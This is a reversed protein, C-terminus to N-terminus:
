GFLKCLQAQKRLSVLRESGTGPSKPQYSGFARDDHRLSVAVCENVGDGANGYDIPRIQKEEPVCVSVKREKSRRVVL